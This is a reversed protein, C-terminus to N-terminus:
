ASLFTVFPGQWMYGVTLLAETRREAQGEKGNLGRIFGVGAGDEDRM